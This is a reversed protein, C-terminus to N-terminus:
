LHLFIGGNSYSVHHPLVQLWIYTQHHNFVPNETFLLLSSSFLSGKMHLFLEFPHLEQVSQALTGNLTCTQILPSTLSPSMIIPTQLGGGVWPSPPFSVGRLLPLFDGSWLGQNKHPVQIERVNAPFAACPCAFLVSAKQLSDSM